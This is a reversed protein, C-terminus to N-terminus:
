DHLIQLVFLTKVKMKITRVTTDKVEINTVKKGM